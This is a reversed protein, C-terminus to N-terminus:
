RMFMAVAEVTTSAGLAARARALRRDATRPSLHLEVAAERLSRGLALLRLVAAEDVTLLDQRGQAPQTRVVLGDLRRLDGYLRDLIPRPALAHIVLMEGRLAALMAEGASAEDTVVVRRQPRIAPEAVVAEFLDRSGEVAVHSM